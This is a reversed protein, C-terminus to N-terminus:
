NRDSEDIVEIILKGQEVYQRNPGKYDDECLAGITDQYLLYRPSGLRQRIVGGKYRLTVAVDDKHWEFFRKETLTIQKKERM